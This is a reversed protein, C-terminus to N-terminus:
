AAEALRPALLDLATKLTDDRGEPDVPTAIDPAIGVGHIPQNRATFYEGTTVQVAARASIPIVSQIMGNGYTRQGILRARGSDRLAAALIEAGSATDHNVLVVLPAGKTDDGRRASYREIDTPRRGRQGGIPGKEMFIDALAQVSELLGGGNGRLDLVYGAPRPLRARIAAIAERTLEATRADFRTVAIIGVNGEIRWTVSPPQVIIARTLKVEFPPADGRRVTLTVVSGLPGRLRFIFRNVTIGRIDEGDIRLIADGKKLVAESPGGPITSVIVPVGDEVKASMGLGGPGAAWVERDWATDVYAGGQGTAAVMGDIAVAVLRREDVKGEARRRVEAFYALLEAKTRVEPPPLETGKLEYTLSLYRASESAMQEESVPKLSQAQVLDFASDVELLAADMEIPGAFAMLLALWLSM